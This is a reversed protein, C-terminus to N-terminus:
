ILEVTNKTQTKGLINHRHTEVTRKSICLRNAIQESTLGLFILHLIEFERETILFHNQFVKKENINNLLKETSDHKYTDFHIMKILNSLINNMEYSLFKMYTIEKRSNLNHFADFIIYASLYTHGDIRHPHTIAVFDNVKNDLSTFTGSVSHNKVKHKVCKRLHNKVKKRDKKHVLDGVDYSIIENITLGSSNKLIKNLLLYKNKHILGFGINFKNLIDIVWKFSFLLQHFFDRHQEPINQWIVTPKENYIALGEEKNNDIVKIFDSTDTFRNIKYGNQQMIRILLDTNVKNEEIVYLKKNTTILTNNKM